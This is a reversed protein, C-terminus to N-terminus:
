GVNDGKERLWASLSRDGGRWFAPRLRRCRKWSRSKGGRRRRRSRRRRRRRGESDHQLGANALAARLHAAYPGPETLEHAQVSLKAAREAREPRGPPPRGNRLRAGTEPGMRLHRRLPSSAHRLGGQTQRATSRHSPIRHPVPPVPRQPSPATSTALLRPSLATSAKCRDQPPCQQKNKALLALKRAATPPTHRQVKRYSQHWSQAQSDRVCGESPPPLVRTNWERSCIGNVLDIRLHSFLM